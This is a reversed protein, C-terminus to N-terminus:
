IKISIGAMINAGAQPFYHNYYYEKNGYIWNYTYGNASYVKSFINNALINFQIEEVHKVTFKYSLRISSVDYATIKKREDQSNDLYQKGVYKNIYVFELNKIPTIILQASAISNPSYAINTKSYHITDIGDATDYNSILYDFNNIQNQSLTTNAIIEIFRNPKYKLELEIGKRYSSKANLRKANGVDNLEGTLVLQNKYDMYYLNLGIAITKNQFSTGLEFDNLTEHLPQKNIKNERLDDRNPEKNARSYSAFAKLQNNFQYVTGIKPNFFFYKKTLTSDNGNMDIGALTYRVNRVQLDTYINLKNIPRYNWKIYNNFDNKTAKDNYYQQNIESNSAYRAWIVEGFHKGIYTNAGGGLNFNMKSNPTYNFSYVTGYFDNDLWKRRILDSNKITDNTTIADPIKYNSLLQNYKYEEYYGKGKTYHASIVFNFKNNVDHIFHLQSNNQMYNDVQNKYMFPNFTNPNSNYYNLSDAQTYLGGFNNTIYDNISDKNNLLKAEPVGNWAQYTRENGSFNIAKITTKKGYYAGSFYYSYLKSKARDIYGDSVIRSARADFTWTSDILGTGAAITNRLTNFSGGSNILNVYPKLSVLNTQLNLSGGFAGAGNSSTGAGRQIQISKTSSLLDPMNVWYVGQSEADNVPIGNITVNTRTADSGRIRIGTYGVGNGADSTTVVSTQNNLTIPVDQGLNNKEIEKKDINTYAIPTNEDARTSKVVVEAVNISSPELEVSVTKNSQTNIIKVLNNYGQASFTFEFMGEGINIEFEGINNSQATAYGPKVVITAYPIAEGSKSKITGKLNQSHLQISCILAIAFLLVKNKM